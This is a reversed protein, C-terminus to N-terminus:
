CSRSEKTFHRSVYRKLLEDAEEYRSASKRASEIITNKFKALAHV